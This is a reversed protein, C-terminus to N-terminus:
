CWCWCWVCLDEAGSGRDAVWGAAPCVARSGVVAALVGQLQCRIGCSQWWWWERLVAAPDRWGVACM